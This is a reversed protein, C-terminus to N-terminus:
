KKVVKNKSSLEHSSIDKIVNSKSLVENLQNISSLLDLKNNEYSVIKEKAVISKNKFDNNEIILKEYNEKYFNFDREIKTSYSKLNLFIKKQKTVQKYISILTEKTDNITEQYNKKEEFKEVNKLLITKDQELDTIQFRLKEEATKFSKIKKNLDVITLEQRKLSLIVEDKLINKNDLQKSPTTISTDQTELSEIAEDKHILKDKYISQDTKIQYNELQKELGKIKLNLDFIIKLTNKKIKKTFKSYLDDIIQVRTEEFTKNYSKAKIIDNKSYNLDPQPVYSSLKKKINKQKVM